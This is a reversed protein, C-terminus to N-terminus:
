TTTADPTPTSTCSRPSRRPPPGVYEVADAPLCRLQPEALQAGEYVPGLNAGPLLGLILVACQEPSLGLDLFVASTFLSYNGRLNRVKRASAAWQEAIRWYHMDKRGRREVCERLALVREDDLRFPVGFGPLRETSKLRRLVEAEMASPDTAREGLQAEISLLLEATTKLTQPGIVPSAFSLGIAALGAVSHGFSSVVRALKFPWVRPDGVANVAVVDDILACDEPSLMRGSIGLVALGTYPLRGAIEERISRGWLRNDDNVAIGVRSYM